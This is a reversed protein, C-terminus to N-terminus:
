FYVKIKITTEPECFFQDSPASIEWRKGSGVYSYSAGNDADGVLIACKNFDIFRCQCMMIM